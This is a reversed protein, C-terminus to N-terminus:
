DWIYQEDFEVANLRLLERYEKQFTRNRHHEEQREVYQVVTKLQSQSVSFAGYGRQWSFGRYRTGLSKIWKSSPKKIGEILQAQSVTRPLTTVIHVHDAIGGVCFKRTWTAASPRWIRTCKPTTDRLRAV